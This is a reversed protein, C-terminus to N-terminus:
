SPCWMNGQSDPKDTYAIDWLWPRDTQTYSTLPVDWPLPFLMSDKSSDVGQVNFLKLNEEVKSPVFLVGIEYSRIFLQSNNKEYAGWAAKSLNASTVIFWALYQADPSIRTYTKIHPSARSRGRSFARWQHLFTNFYQQKRANKISYPLSAGAPYGELSRRVNEVCPFILNLKPKSLKVIGNAQVTSLSELWESSLWNEPGSGLSGVSSFQGIVPWDKVTSGDPGHEQLVKRLKLHGWKMKSAGTHRGPVSGIIFVKASSMDHQRITEQWEQLHKNTGYAGLYELLDKRFQTVSDGQSLDQDSALKPFLPSIWVGQTKQYWDNHIINATHIVVRMGNDYLLFMMKSHHTGYMIDLKAQCLTINPYRHANEHLTTKDARQSGHIILLPKSRFQEPYQQVLWPIDFMYNFQASSILNGMSASLIDKIGVALSSNYHNPIGFVKTLFFNLPAAEIYNEYPSMKESTSSQTKSKKSQPSEDETRSKKCSLHSSPQEDSRRRKNSQNSSSGAKEFDDPHSYEEFHSPNRRYCKMGYKCMPKTVSSHHDNSDDSVERKSVLTVHEAM